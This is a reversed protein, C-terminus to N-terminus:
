QMTEVWMHVGGELEKSGMGGRAVVGIRKASAAIKRPLATKLIKGRVDNLCGGVM